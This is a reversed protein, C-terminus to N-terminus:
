PITNGGKVDEFTFRISFTLLVITPVPGLSWQTISPTSQTMM